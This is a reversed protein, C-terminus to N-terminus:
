EKVLVLRSRDSKLITAYFKVLEPYDAAPFTGAKREVKRIYNLTNGRISVAASYSGFKATLAVPAPLSEPKYGAPLTITVSDVDRYAFDFQIDSKRSADAELKVGGRTLINPVLFM